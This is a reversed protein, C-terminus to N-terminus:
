RYETYCLIGRVGRQELAPGLAEDREEPETEADNFDTWKGKPMTAIFAEVDPIRLCVKYLVTVQRSVTLDSYAVLEPKRNGDPFVTGAKHLFDLAQQHTRPIEYDDWDMFTSLGRKRKNNHLRQLIPRDPISLPSLPSEELPNFEFLETQMMDTSGKRAIEFPNTTASNSRDTIQRQGSTATLTYHHRSVTECRM